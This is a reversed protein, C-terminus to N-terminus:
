KEKEEQIWRLHRIDDLDQPRGVAEKMAILAPIAVYRVPVPAQSPIEVTDTLARRYEEDFDFPEIVFVDIPTERHADSAFQLVNMGKDRIWSARMAPDGFQAATIPVRPQYGLRALADFARRINEPLLEVAFDADNTFRLYGHANVALGGVVLARVGAENLAGLIMAVSALKM